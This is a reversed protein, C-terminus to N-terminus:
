ADANWAEGIPSVVDGVFRITGQMCGFASRGPRRGVAVLKVTPRNARAIVVEEGAEVAAILESLHTKAEHINVQKM